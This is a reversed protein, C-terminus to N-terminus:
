KFFLYYRTIVDYGDHFSNTKIDFCSQSNLLYLTEYLWVAQDYAIDSKKQFLILHEAKTICINPIFFKFPTTEDTVDPYTICILYKQFEELPMAHYATLKLHNAYFIATNLLYANLQSATYIKELNLCHDTRSILPIEDFIPTDHFTDEIEKNFSYNELESIKLLEELYKM